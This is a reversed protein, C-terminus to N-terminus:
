EERNEDAAIGLKDLRYRFSRFSIKLLAAAKNRVGHTRTLAQEILNREMDALVTDLNVGDDPLAMMQPASSVDSGLLEPPLGDVQITEGPALTAARELFNGLERVNGPYAYDLLRKMADRSLTKRPVGQETAIRKLLFEALLPIDEQRKRLPPIEINIVNLRYYLDSRFGGDAVLQKLDQNTAAVVRIDVPIEESAGVPRIQKEQLVRLLKVQLPLPLEGIEDLFVTGGKAADFIGKKTDVAGTFSGKIHGFLESEMLQEPLAGCNIPLFPASARPGSFHLSRAVVEKGTGSEGTILVTAISPAVKKCLEVVQQMADSRGIVDAFRYEGKVKARLRENDRVLARHKLAQRVVIMFEEVNFPKSIYDFAGLKMAEVATEPTGFATFVIVEIGLNQEKVANLIELGGGRDMVLDTVILDFPGASDLMGIAQKGSRATEVQFGNRKLLITVMERMSREDDVILIRAADTM